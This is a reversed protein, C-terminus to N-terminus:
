KIKAEQLAAMVIHVVHQRHHAATEAPRFGQGAPAHFTARPNSIVEGDRVIGVGIKNASGEIGLICVM